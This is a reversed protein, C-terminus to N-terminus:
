PRPACGQLLARLARGGPRRTALASDGNVGALWTLQVLVDGSGASVHGLLETGVLHRLSKTAGDAGPYADVVALKMPHGIRDM